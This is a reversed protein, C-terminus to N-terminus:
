RMLRTDTFKGIANRLNGTGGCDPCTPFGNEPCDPKQPLWVVDDSFVRESDANKFAKRFAPLDFGPDMRIQLLNRNGIQKLLGGWRAHTTAHHLIAMAVFGKLANLRTTSFIPTGDSTVNNRFGENLYAKYRSNLACRQCAPTTEPHSFTVEGGRGEAYVQASLSPLGFQLSLRNVRAQAAFNDTLGCVLTVAPTGTSRSEAFLGNIKALGLKSTDVTRWSETALQGFTADDIDDLLVPCTAILVNPNIDRLRDAICDVKAVGLDRRYTQQTALNTESVHDPDILVFEGVGARGLDEIFGAAGGSGIAIVRCSALRDLDYAGQVRRFTVGGDIRKKSVVPRTIGTKQKQTRDMHSIPATLEPMEVRNGEADVVILELREIRVGNGERYAAFPYFRFYGTDPETLVIPMLLCEMDPIADLIRRAYVCDGGSPQDLGGSPSGPHSHVFGLLKIGNPNWDISLLKNLTVHDPSYTVGSRSASKDFYFERVVGETRDGGLMGGEEASRSGITTRIEKIVTETIRFAEPKKGAKRKNATSSASGFTLDDVTTAEVQDRKSNRSVHSSSM